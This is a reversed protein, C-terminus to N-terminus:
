GWWLCLACFPLYPVYTETGSLHEHRKRKEDVHLMYNIFHWKNHERITHGKFGTPSADELEARAHGCVYCLNRQM